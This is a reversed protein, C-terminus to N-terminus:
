ILTNDDSVKDMIAVPENNGTNITESSFIDVCESFSIQKNNNPDIINLLHNVKEDFESQKYIKMAHVLNVFEQENL